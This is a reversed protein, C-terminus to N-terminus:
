KKISEKIRNWEKELENKESDFISNPLITHCYSKICEYEMVYEIIMPYDSKKYGDTVFIKYFKEYLSGVIVRYYINKIVSLLVDASFLLQTALLILSINEVKTLVIILVIILVIGKIVNRYIMKETIKKTYLTSEFNNMGMKEISPTIENSYYGKSKTTTINVGFSDAIMTKRLEREANNKLILDNYGTYCIYIINLSILIYNIMSYLIENIDFCVIVMFFINIIYLVLLINENRSCKDFLKSSENKYEKEM